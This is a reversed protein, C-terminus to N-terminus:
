FFTEVEQPIDEHLEKIQKCAWEKKDTLGIWQVLIFIGDTPKGSIDM